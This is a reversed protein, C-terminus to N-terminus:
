GNYLGHIKNIEVDTLDDLTWKDDIKRLTLNLTYTVKDKVKELNDLKYNNFKETDMVGETTLFENSNEQLYNNADNIAKGYDYVEVQVEVTAADGDITEDKIEYSLHQYQRKIISKYREKQDNTMVTESLLTKDLDSLVESNLTIYNNMLTEVRKTPTNMLDNSCGTFLILVILFIVLKKM